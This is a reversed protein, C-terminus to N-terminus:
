VINTERVKSIIVSCIKKCYNGVKKEFSDFISNRVIDIMVCFVVVAIAFLLLVFIYYWEGRMSWLDYKSLIVKRVAEEFLYAAIVHRGIQNVVSNVFDHKLFLQFILISLLITVVSSDKAFPAYINNVRHIFYGTSFNLCFGFVFVALIWKIYYKEMKGCVQYESIYQGMLYMMLMNCIGKGDDGMIHLFTITPIISFVVFMLFLLREFCERKLVKIISNIYDSFIMIVIYVSIFWYKRSLVPMMSRILEKGVFVDEGIIVSILYSSVSYFTAIMILRVIKNVSPKIGFYGSILIFMSVGTNFLTNIAAGHALDMISGDYFGFSHMCVIGTISLIRLLEISSNRKGFYGGSHSM